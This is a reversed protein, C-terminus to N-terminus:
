LTNISPTTKEAKKFIQKALSAHAKDIKALDGNEGLNRNVAAGIQEGRAGSNQETNQQSASYQHVLPAIEQDILGQHHRNTPEHGYVQKFVKREQLIDDLRGTRDEASKCFFECHRNTSEQIELFLTQFEMVTDAKKYRKEYFCEKAQTLKQNLESLNKLQPDKNFLEQLEKGPGKDYNKKQLALEKAYTKNLEKELKQQKISANKFEKKNTPSAKGKLEPGLDSIIAEQAIVLAQSNIKLRYQLDARKELLAASLHPNKSAQDITALLEEKKASTLSSKNITEKMFTYTSEQCQIFAKANALTQSPDNPIRGLGKKVAGANTGLNMVQAELQVWVPKGNIELKVPRNNWASLALLSEKLQLTESEGKWKGMIVKDKNRASDGLKATLLMMTGLPIPMPKGKSNGPPPSDGVIKTALDTLLQKGNQIAVAQRTASDKIQIPPYSSHRIKQSLIEVQGNEQVTGFSTTVYNALGIQKRATSPYTKDSNPSQMSVFTKDKVQFFNIITPRGRDIVQQKEAAAFEKLTFKPDQKAITKQVDRTFQALLETAPEHLKTMYEEYNHYQVNAKHVNALNILNQEFKSHLKDIEKLTPDDSYLKDIEKKLEPDNKDFKIQDIKKKLEPDNKAKTLATQYLLDARVSFGKAKAGHYAGEAFNNVEYSKGGIEFTHTTVDHADKETRIKVDEGNVKVTHERIGQKADIKLDQILQYIQAVETSTAAKLKDTPTAEASTAAETQPMRSTGIVITSGTRVTQISQEAVNQFAKKLNNMTPDVATQHPMMAQPQMSTVSNIANEPLNVPVKVSTKNPKEAKVSGLDSPLSISSIFQTNTNLTAM